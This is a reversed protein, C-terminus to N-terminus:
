RRHCSRKLGGPGTGELTKDDSTVSMAYGTAADFDDLRSVRHGISRALLRRASNESQRAAQECAADPVPHGAEVVEIRGCPVAHGYRTIVLGELPGPWAAEFARAMAASAKGAGVVVTRGRVPAPIRRELAKSPDAAALAADFLERLTEGAVAQNDTIVCNNRRAFSTAM